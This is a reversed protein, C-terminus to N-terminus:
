VPPCLNLGAPIASEARSQAPPTPVTSIEPVPRQFPSTSFCGTEDPGEEDSLVGISSEPMGTSPTGPGLPGANVAGAVRVAVDLNDAHEMLRRARSQQANALAGM